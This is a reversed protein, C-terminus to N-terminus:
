KKKLNKIKEQEQKHFYQEEIAAEKRGFAGSGTRAGGLSAPTVTDKKEESAQEAAKKLDQAQEKKEQEVVKKYKKLVEVEHDHIFKEESASGKKNFASSGDGITGYPRINRPVIARKLATRIM